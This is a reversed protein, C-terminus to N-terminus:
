IGSDERVGPEEIGSDGVAKGLYFLDPIRKSNGGRIKGGRVSDWIEQNRTLTPTRAVSVVM